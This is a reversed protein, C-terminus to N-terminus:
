QTAGQTSLQSPIFHFLGQNIAEKGFYINLFMGPLHGPAREGLHPQGISLIGTDGPM